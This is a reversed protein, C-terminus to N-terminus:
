RSCGVVTNRCSYSFNGTGVARASYRRRPHRCHVERLNDRLPESLTRTTAAEKALGPPLMSLAAGLSAVLPADVGCLAVPTGGDDIYLGFWAGGAPSHDFKGDPKVDLGDFLLVEVHHKEVARILGDAGRRGHKTGHRSGLRAIQLLQYLLDGSADAARQLTAAQDLAVELIGPKACIRLGTRQIIQEAM